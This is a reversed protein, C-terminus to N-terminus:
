IQMKFRQADVAPAFLGLGFHSGYGLCLPGRVPQAFGLELLRGLTDAQVLGRRRRFRHFDLPRLDRGGHQVSPLERIEVIEPLGTGRGHWERRLQELIAEATAAPSRMQPKKLHWPHLYPTVSQWIASKGVLPTITNLLMASGLGELMLRLPEGEDRKMQDLGTLVRIADPSLGGPAHVLLHEIEGNTGPDPLWFAHGHRNDDGLGHGSLEKPLADPGLLRKARGMAAFRLAESIRVADQIRPLPKGYLAYRATTVASKGRAVARKRTVKPATAVLAHLPRRYSLTQACPPASWGAAQLDGTEVSIADIWDVPLTLMLKKQTANLRLAHAAADPQIGEANLKDRRFAAYDHPKRPVLLRIIEGTVEGSEADMYGSAPVCNPELVDNTRRADVWSEARGLFGLNELLADLLEIQPGSLELNPWAMVVPDDNAVRAFADFVLTRKDGKGPMYHRTHAHIAVESLRFSPPEAEALRALLADLRERSCQTPDLKRHWVAILARSIRWLDPPWAVDAENVHRGWPTAHYRGAPFTFAITLM